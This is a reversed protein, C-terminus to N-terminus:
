SNHTIKYIHFSTRWISDVSIQSLLWFFTSERRFSGIESHLEPKKLLSFICAYFQSCAKVFRKLKKGDQVFSGIQLHKNKWYSSDKRAACFKCIDWGRSQCPPCIGRLLGPSPPATSTSAPISQHMVFTWERRKFLSVNETKKFLGKM